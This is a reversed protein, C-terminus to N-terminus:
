QVSEALAVLEPGTAPVDNTVGLRVLLSGLADALLDREHIAQKTTM